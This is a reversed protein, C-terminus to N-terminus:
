PPPRSDPELAAAVARLRSGLAGRELPAYLASSGDTLLIRLMALGRATVPTPARLRRDIASLVVRAAHVEDAHPRVAASLGFGSDRASRRARVLGAAIRRRSRRGTLARARVTLAATGEPSAGAALQRDLEASRWWAELRAPVRPRVRPAPRFTVTPPAVQQLRQANM